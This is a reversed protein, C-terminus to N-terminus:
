ILNLLRAKYVTGATHHTGLKENINKKHTEVAAVSIGLVLSVDKTSCGESLLRLIHLERFFLINEPPSSSLNM